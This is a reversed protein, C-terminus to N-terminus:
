SHAHRKIHCPKCTAKYDTISRAPYVLHDAETSWGLCGDYQYECIPRDHIVQKALRQHTLGYHTKDQPRKAHKRKGPVLPPIDPM